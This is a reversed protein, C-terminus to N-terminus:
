SIALGVTPTSASLLLLTTPTLLNGPVELFMVFADDWATISLCDSMTAFFLRSYVATLIVVVSDIVHQSFLYPCACFFIQALLSCTVSSLGARPEM